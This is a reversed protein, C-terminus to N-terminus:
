FSKVGHDHAIFAWYKGRWQRPYINGNDHIYWLIQFAGNNQPTETGM